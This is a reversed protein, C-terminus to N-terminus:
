VKSEEAAGGDASARELLTQASLEQGNSRLADAVRKVLPDDAADDVTRTGNHAAVDAAVFESRELHLDVCRRAVLAVTKCILRATGDSYAWSHSDRGLPFLWVMTAIADSNEGNRHFALFIALHLETPTLPEDVLEVQLQVRVLCSQDLEPPVGCPVPPRTAVPSWLREVEEAEGVVAPLPLVSSEPDLALGDRFPHPGLQGLHSGREPQASVVGNGLLAAPKPPEHLSHPPDSM